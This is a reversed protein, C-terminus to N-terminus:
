RAPSNRRPSCACCRRTPSRPSTPPLPEKDRSPDREHKLRVVVVARACPRVEWGDEMDVYRRRVNLVTGYVRKHIRTEPTGGGASLVKSVFHDGVELWRPEIPSEHRTEKRRM